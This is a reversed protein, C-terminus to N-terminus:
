LMWGIMAAGLAFTVAAAVCFERLPGSAPTPPSPPQVRLRVQTIVRPPPEPLRVMRARLEFPQEPEPQPQAQQEPCMRPLGVLTKNRNPIM